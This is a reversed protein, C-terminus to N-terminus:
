DRTGATADLTGGALRITLAQGAAVQDPSKVVAGSSDRVIAYGRELIRLPSLQTLHAELPAFVSRAAALGSQMCRALAADAAAVADLVTSGGPVRVTKGNVFVTLESM